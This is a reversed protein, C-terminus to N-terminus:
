RVVADSLWFPIQVENRFSNLAQPTTDIRFSAKGNELWGPSHWYTVGKIEKFLGRSISQMAQKFWTAKRDPQDADEIVGFESVLIPKQTTMERVEGMFRKIQQPFLIWSEQPLQRGFVSLGIWDIYDDGPYYYKASNWEADPYKNTDLHLVWTINWAGAQRFLDIVHRYADRFREPGDPINPDGYDTKKSGGNWKGNWPFWNGNVEPGLEMMIAVNKSKAKQAWAVLQDDFDGDIIKQMSILPDKQNQEMESWPSFRIYPIVGQRVCVDIAAEPFEIKGGLWHNSFYAWAIKRGSLEAFRSIKEDTVEVELPGFDAFAGFYASGEPPPVVKLSQAYAQNTLVFILLLLKICFNNNRM